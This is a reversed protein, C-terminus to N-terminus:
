EHRLAEVPSMNAARRAPYLGGLVGTALAVILGGLLVQPTIVLSMNVLIYRSIITNALISIALGGFIGLVGGICSIIAAEVLFLALIDKRKAGIAKMIGIERTRELVSMLMVNIIGLCGVILAILAISIVV